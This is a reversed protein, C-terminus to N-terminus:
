RGGLVFFSGATTPGATGDNGGHLTITTGSAQVVDQINLSAPPTTTIAVAAPATSPNIAAFDISSLLEGLDLSVDAAASGATYSGTVVIRDGFYTPRPDITVAM